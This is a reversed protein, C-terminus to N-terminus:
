GEGKIVADEREVEERGLILYCSRLGKQLRHAVLCPCLYSIHVDIERVLFGLLIPLDESLKVFVLISVDTDIVELLCQMYTHSLSWSHPEM